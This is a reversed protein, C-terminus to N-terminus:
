GLLGRSLAIRLVIDAARLNQYKRLAAALDDEFWERDKFHEVAVAPIVLFKGPLLVDRWVEREWDKHSGRALHGAAGEVVPLVGSVLKEVFWGPPEGPSSALVAAVYPESARYLDAAAKLARAVEPVGVSAASGALGELPEPGLGRRYLEVVAEALGYGTALYPIGLLKWRGGQRGAYVTLTAGWSMAIVELVATYGRPSGYEYKRFAHDPMGRPDLPTYRSGALDRVSQWEMSALFELWAYRSWEQSLFERFEELYEGVRGRGRFLRLVGL